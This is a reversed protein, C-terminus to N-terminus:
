HKALPKVTLGLKKFIGDKIALITLYLGRFGDSPNKLGYLAKIVSRAMIHLVVMPRKFEYLFMYILNRVSYYNRWPLIKTKRLDSKKLDWRSSMSRYEKFLDCPVIIKYGANLVKLCFNTEEFGFFLDETPLCGSTVVSGSILMCQNGGVTHLHLYQNNLIESDKVRVTAGRSINFYSGVPAIIGINQLKLKEIHNFLRENLDKVKPPDDDDIWQIWKFGQANLKTLAFNAAGSPGRNSEMRCEEIVMGSLGSNLRRPLPDGNNVVLITSPAISQIGIHDITHQLIEPRNFTIIFAAFDSRIM